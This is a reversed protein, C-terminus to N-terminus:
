QWDRDALGDTVSRRRSQQIPIMQSKAPDWRFIFLYDGGVGRQPIKHFDYTGDIGVWGALNAIYNRIQASTANTGSRKGLAALTSRIQSGVRCNAAAVTSHERSQPRRSLSADITKVPGRPSLSDPAAYAALAM